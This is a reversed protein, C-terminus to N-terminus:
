QPHPLDPTLGTANIQVRITPRMPDTDDLTVVASGRVGSNNLENFRPIEYRTIGALALSPFFSAALLLSTFNPRLKM